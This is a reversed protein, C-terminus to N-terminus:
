WWGSPVYLLEGAGCIGEYCGAERRAEAHFTLLYEAISLPSTVESSDESVFVGPPQPVSPPFM